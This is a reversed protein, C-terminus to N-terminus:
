GGARNTRVAQPSRQTAIPRSRGTEARRYRCLHALLRRRSIEATSKGAGPHQKEREWLEYGARFDYVNEYGLAVLKKFAAPLLYGDM